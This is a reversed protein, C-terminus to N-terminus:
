YGISKLYKRSLEVSEFATLGLSPKDQEVIAWEAGADEAAEMIPPIKQMGHGIPRFEFSDNRKKRKSNDDGILEYMGERDADPEMHFDKLHVIPARGSYKRLYEPPNEGGVNVWCMDLETQLLDAPITNYLIDLAYEGDVKDFEFDHNHYLLQLGYKKANAGIVRIDEITQLFLDTGPRREAALWPVAVYRCGCEAFFSFTEDPTEHMEVFPVHASMVELGNGEVIKKIESAPTNYRGGLEVGAYGIKKVREITEKFNADADDRVSYLQLGIKVSM